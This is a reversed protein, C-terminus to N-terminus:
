RKLLSLADPPERYTFVGAREGHDLVDFMQALYMRVMRSDFETSPTSVSIRTELEESVTMRIGKARFEGFLWISPNRKMAPHLKRLDGITERRSAIALFHRDFEFYGSSHDWNNFLQPSAKGKELQPFLMKAGAANAGDNPWAFLFMPRSLTVGAVITTGGRNPGDEDSTSQSVTLLVTYKGKTVRMGQHLKGSFEVRYDRGLETALLAFKQKYQRFAVVGGVVLLGFFGGVILVEINM